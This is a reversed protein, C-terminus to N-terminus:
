IAINQGGFEGKCSILYKGANKELIISTNRFRKLFLPTELINKLSAKLSVHVGEVPVTKDIDSTSEDQSDIVKDGIKYKEPRVFISHKEYM